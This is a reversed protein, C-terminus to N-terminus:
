FYQQGRPISGLFHAKGMDSPTLLVHLAATLSPSCRLLVSCWWFLYMETFAFLLEPLPEKDYVVSLDAKPVSFNRRQSIM